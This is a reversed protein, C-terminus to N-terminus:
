WSARAENSEDNLCKNVVVAKKASTREYLVDLKRHSEGNALFFPNLNFSLLQKGLLCLLLTIQFEAFAAEGADVETM